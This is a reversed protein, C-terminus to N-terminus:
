LLELIELSHFDKDIYKKISRDVQKELEDLVDEKLVFTFLKELPSTCIYQWTYACTDSVNGVPTDNYEGGIVMMRLELIRRVLKNPLSPRSLATLAYYLLKIMQPERMNERAYYDALELFYSGYCTKEMDESLEEFYNEIQASHLSMSDRGGYLRFEGCAFIRTVGMLSNGVRRSGRAFASIKGKEKTLLTIRKDYEGVPMVKIIIGHVETLGNM